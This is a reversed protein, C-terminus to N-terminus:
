KKRNLNSKVLKCWEEVGSLGENGIDKSRRDEKHRDLYDKPANSMEKKIVVTFIIGGGKPYFVEVRDVADGIIEKAKEEWDPNVPNNNPGSKAIAAEQKQVEPTPIVRKSVMDVLQAVSDQLSNFQEVTAYKIPEDIEVETLVKKIGRPM